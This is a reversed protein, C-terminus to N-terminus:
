IMAQSIFFDGSWLVIKEQRKNSTEQRKDRTVQRKDSTEIETRRKNFDKFGNAM